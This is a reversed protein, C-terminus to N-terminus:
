TLTFKKWTMVVTNNSYTRNVLIYLDLNTTDFVLMGVCMKSFFMDTSGGNYPVSTPPAGAYYQVGPLVNYETNEPGTAALGFFWETRGTASGNKPYERLTLLLKGHQSNDLIISNSLPSLKENIPQFLDVMVSPTDIDYYMETIRYPITTGSIQSPCIVTVVYEPLHAAIYSGPIVFNGWKDIEADLETLDIAFAGGNLGDADSTSPALSIAKLDVSSYDINAFGIQQPFPYKVQISIDPFTGTPDLEYQYGGTHPVRTDVLENVVRIDAKGSSISNITVKLDAKQYVRADYGAGTATENTVPLAFASGYYNTDHYVIAGCGWNSVVFEKWFADFQEKTQFGIMSETEAAQYIISFTFSGTITEEEEEENYEGTYGGKLYWGDPLGGPNDAGDTLEVLSVALDKSQGWENYHASGDQVFWMQNTGAPKPFAWYGDIQSEWPRDENPTVVITPEAVTVTVMSAGGTAVEIPEISGDETVGLAKGADAIDYGTNGLVNEAFEELDAPSVYSKAKMKYEMNMVEKSIESRSIDRVRAIGVPNRPTPRRNVDEGNAAELAAVREELDAVKDKLLNMQAIISRNDYEEELSVRTM